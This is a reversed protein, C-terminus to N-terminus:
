HYLRGASVASRPAMFPDGPTVLQAYRVSFATGGASLAAPVAAGSTAGSGKLVAFRRGGPTLTIKTRDWRWSSISGLHGQSGEARAATFAASGFDALPLTRCSSIGVTCDSPAEVIWEASSVDVQSAHLTRSFGHHRTVDYLALTARHAVVTVTANLLDGAGVSVRVPVSPAPVLEYWMSMLPHGATDCDTETGIQELAQSNQSYGGLGVWYASFAPQGDACSASPQRWSASVRRFSIGSRHVAYGAWNSSYSSDALATPAAVLAALAALGALLSTMRARVLTREPTRSMPKLM